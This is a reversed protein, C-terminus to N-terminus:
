IKAPRNENIRKIDHLSKDILNRVYSIPEPNNYEIFINLNAKIGEWFVDDHVKSDQHHRYVSWFLDNPFTIGLLIAEYLVTDDNSKNYRPPPPPPPNKQPTPGRSGNNYFM